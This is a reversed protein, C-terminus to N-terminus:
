ITTMIILIRVLTKLAGQQKQKMLKFQTESDHLVHSVQGGYEVYCGDEKIDYAEVPLPPSFQVESPVTVHQVSAPIALDPLVEDEFEPSIHNNLIDATIVENVFEMLTSSSNVPEGHIQHLPEYMTKEVTAFLGDHLPQDSLYSDSNNQEKMEEDLSNILTFGISTEVNNVQLEMEDSNESIMEAAGDLMEERFVNRSKMDRSELTTVRESFSVSRKVVIPLLVNELEDQPGSSVSLSSIHKRFAPPSSDYVPDKQPTDDALPTTIKLNYGQPSSLGINVSEETHNGGETSGQFEKAETQICIRDSEESLPSLNSAGRNRQELAKYKSYIETPSTGMWNAFRQKSIDTEQHYQVDLKMDIEDVIIHRKTVRGFEMSDDESCDSSESGHGVLESTDGMTCIIEPEQTTDEEADTRVKLMSAEEEIFAPEELYRASGISEKDPAYSEKSDSLEISQRTFTSHSRGESGLRESVLCARFRNMDQMEGENTGFFSPRINFSEHRCFIPVNSQFPVFEQDFHDEELDPKEESSGYSLAFPNRQPLLISPASGPIPPSGLTEYSDQPLDFPNTRKTWISPVNFPLDTDDFDILNKETMMRMTKRARQRTVLNELRQNKELESTGLDKLNKQDAETWTIASKTHDEEVRCIEENEDDAVEKEEQHESDDDSDTNNEDSRGSAADSSVHYLNGPQPTVEYLLPHLEDLMPLIGAMSAVPSSREARGSDLDSAEDDDDDSNVQEQEKVYKGLRNSGVPSMANEMDLQEDDEDMILSYQNGLTRRDGYMDELLESQCEFGLDELERKREEQVGEGFKVMWSMEDVLQPSRCYNDISIENAVLSHEKQYEFELEELERAREDQVGEGSKVMWSMEEVLPPSSCYNNIMSIENLVLRDEKVLMEVVEGKDKRKAHVGSREFVVNDRSFRPKLTTIDYAMRKEEIEPMIPKGYSLLTGLLVATCVLVPSASVLMSFFFPFSSHLFVLFSLMGLLFPHSFILRSCGKFTFIVVKRMEVGINVM